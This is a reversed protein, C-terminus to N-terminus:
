IEENLSGEKKLSVELEKKLSEIEREDVDVDMLSKLKEQISKLERKKFDLNIEKEKQLEKIKAIKEKEKKIKEIEKKLEELLEKKRQELEELNEKIDASLEKQLETKVKLNEEIKELEKEISLKKLSLKNLKEKKERNEKEKLKLEEFDEEKYGKLDINKLEEELKQINEKLSSLMKEKVEVDLIVKKLEEKQQKLKNYEEKIKKDIKLDKFPHHLAGCLPCPTNEKLIKRDEEYKLILLDDELSAIKQEVESLKNELINKNLKKLEELLNDKKEKERLYVEKLKFYSNFIEEIEDFNEVEEVITKNMEEEILKLENLLADKKEELGIFKELEKKKKLFEKKKYIKKEIDNFLDFFVREFEELEKQYVPEIKEKLLNDLFLTLENIEKEVIKKSELFKDKERKVFLLAELEKLRKKKNEIDKKLTNLENEKQALEVKDVKVLDIKEKLNEFEVLKEKYKEFVKKSILEYKKVDLVKELVKAKDKSSAKLFADFEGQALVIAKTFHEFDLKLIKKLEDQIDKKDAILVGNKYLNRKPAQIDKRRKVSWEIKYDNGLHEFELVIEASSSNENLLYKSYKLRATRDFLAALIADIITTKGSGTPGSILFLSDFREFDIEFDELSNINKLSLRKLRM